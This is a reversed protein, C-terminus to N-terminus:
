WGEAARWETVWKRMWGAEVPGLAALAPSAAVARDIAMPSVADVTPATGASAAWLEQFFGLLKLAPLRRAVAEIDAEKAAAEQLRALWTAPPVVEVAKATGRPAAAAALADIVAPLLATWPVPHPNRLNFVAAATGSEEGADADEVTVALEVLVDALVDVPVFDVADFGAGLTDPLCRLAASTRVLCPFWEAPNWLGPRRVPGAVQGARAAAITISGAFHVAAAECLGEALFKARAYGVPFAADPNDALVREPAPGAAAGVASVSSVFLVRVPRTAAAAFSFLNVVGGLQPRFEALPLNFNVPWANHIVVSARARLTEYAEPGLGLNPAALDAKLFSVREDIGLQHSDVSAPLLGAGALRARRNLCFVHRVEPRALLAHLLFTGVTGTSGTLIVDIQENAHRHGGKEVVPKPIEQILRRYTALLPEMEARDSDGLADPGERDRGERALLVAGALARVTPHQYVTSLALDQRGLARRLARTLRLAQLSDMDRNFFGDADELAPWGTVAHVAERIVAAVGAADTPAAALGAEDDDDDLVEDAQAYLRDIEIAYQAVTSGRQLTGKGARIPPRDAPTVLVLSKDIRAHMPANRNAEEVSPWVREILAAQEATTLAATSAPEILLAAQIRQSGVVLAGRLEPNRAVIHQEMTIPNTKEGNLFVIIDDARACWRWADPVTPHPTFLDKTRYEKEPQAGIGIRSAFVAQTGVLADDRRIVLEYRGDAIEDFVAGTCPHLRIYNWDNRGALEPPLLQQPISVESAGWQCRLQMKASVRDGIAQPLAGGIYLIMQLRAACFDLLEPNQALEAVVSPVAIAVDAPTQKITDVINQATPIAAVGMDIPINGFPIANFIHQAIGAGHFLPLMSIVRKGRCASDLSSSGGPTPRSIARVHRTLSEHTYFVPKPTGTSGSTHIIVVPESWAEQFTKDLMFSPYQKTLLEDVSPVILHRPKVADIVPLVPPPVPDSTLLTKCKLQDFLSRHAAVSNRPSTLFLVYGAKVAALLLVVYRVDQAGVYTLVEANTNTSAPPGLESALWAALGNVANALQRYTITRLGSTATAWVSYVGDPRGESLRDVIHPLLDDQWRAIAEHDTAAADVAM